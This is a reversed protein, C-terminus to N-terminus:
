PGGGNKGFWSNFLRNWGELRGRKSSQNNNGGGVVAWIIIGVIILLILWSANDQIWFGFDGGGSSFDLVSSDPVLAWYIIFISAVAFLFLAIGSFGNEVKAGFLGVLILFMVAVIIFLSVKPLFLNLRDVIEFQNVVILGVVIGIILNINKKDDGFLKTKELIAFVITFVLLFPLAFEYFGSSQLQYFVDAVTAM